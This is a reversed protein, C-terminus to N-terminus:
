LDTMLEIGDIEFNIKNSVSQRHTNRMIVSLCYIRGKIILLHYLKIILYFQKIIKLGVRTLHLCLCIFLHM